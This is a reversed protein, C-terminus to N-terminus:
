LGQISTAMMNVGYNIVPIVGLFIVIMFPIVVSMQSYSFKTLESKRKDNISEEEMAKLNTQLIRIIDERSFESLNNLSNFSSGFRMDSFKEVYQRANLDFASKKLM